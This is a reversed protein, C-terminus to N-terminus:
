FVQSLVRLARLTVWKSPKGKAEIDSLTKRNFSYEMKWRGDQDQKKLLFELAPQLRTDKGHGLQCMVELIQLMDCAYGLPLGFNFWSSNPKQSYGMPYDAKAPNCSFLFDVGTHIAATIAADRDAPPVKCM